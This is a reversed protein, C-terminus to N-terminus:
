VDSGGKKQQLTIMEVVQAPLELLRVKQAFPQTLAVPIPAHTPQQQQTTSM